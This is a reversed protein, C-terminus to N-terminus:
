YDVFLEVRGWLCWLTCETLMVYGLRYDKSLKLQFNGTCLICPFNQTAVDCCVLSPKYSFINQLM